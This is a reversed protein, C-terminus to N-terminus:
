FGIPISGGDDSFFYSFDVCGGTRDVACPFSHLLTFDVGKKGDENM